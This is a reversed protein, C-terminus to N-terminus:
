VRALLAGGGIHWRGCRAGGHVPGVAFDVRWGSEVSGSSILKYFTSQSSEPRQDFGYVNRKECVFLLQLERGPLKDPLGQEPIPQFDCM